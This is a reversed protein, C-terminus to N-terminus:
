LSEGLMWDVLKRNLKSIVFGKKSEMSSMKRISIVPVGTTESYKMLRDYFCGQEMRPLTHIGDVIVLGTNGSSILREVDAECVWELNKIARVFRRACVEEAIPDGAYQNIYELMKSALEGPTDGLAYVVVKKGDGYNKSLLLAAVVVSSDKEVNQCVRVETIGNTKGLLAITELCIKKTKETMKDAKEKM